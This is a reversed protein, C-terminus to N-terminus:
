VTFAANAAGTLLKLVSYLAEERGGGFSSAVPVCGESEPAVSNNLIGSLASCLCFSSTSSGTLNFPEHIYM